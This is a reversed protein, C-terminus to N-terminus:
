EEGGEMERVVREGLPTLRWEGLSRDIMGRNSLQGGVERLRSTRLGTVAQVMKATVVEDPGRLGLTELLVVQDASLQRRQGRRFVEVVHLRVTNM